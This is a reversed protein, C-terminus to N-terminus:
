LDPNSYDETLFFKSATTQPQHPSCRDLRKHGLNLSDSTQLRYDSTQLRYHLRFDSAIGRITRKIGMLLEDNMMM